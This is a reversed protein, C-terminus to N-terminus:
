VRTGKVAMGLLRVGGGGVVTVEIRNFIRAGVGFGEGL